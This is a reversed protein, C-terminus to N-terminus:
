CRDSSGVPSSKGANLRMFHSQEGALEISLHEGAQLNDLLLDALQNFTSEWAALTETPSVVVSTSM